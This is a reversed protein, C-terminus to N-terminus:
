LYGSYIVTLFEILHTINSAGILITTNDAFLVYKAGPCLAILDNVYLLNLYMTNLCPFTAGQYLLIYYHNKSMLKLINFANTLNSIFWNLPVGQVSYHELKTLLINHDLYDFAKSIDVFLAIVSM